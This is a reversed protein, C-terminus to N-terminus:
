QRENPRAGKAARTQERIARAQSETPDPLSMPTEAGIAHLFPHAQEMRHPVVREPRGGTLYTKTWDSFGRRVTLMTGLTNVWAEFKIRDNETRFRYEMEKETPRGFRDVKVAVRGPTREKDPVAEINFKKVLYPWLVDPSTEVAFAVVDYPVKQGKRHGGRAHTLAADLVFTLIPNLQEEIVAETVRGFADNNEAGVQALFSVMNTADILTDIAPHSPGAIYSGAKGDYIYETPDLVVRAKHYDEGAYWKDGALQINRQALLTRSISPAGRAIASLMENFMAARFAVFLMYRNLQGKIFDPVRGYDLVSARAMSAAQAETMGERLASAFMNVRFARDTANAFYQPLNTRTPDIARLAHRRWTVPAGSSTLMANRLADDVFADNFEVGGRTVGINNRAVADEFEARTWARGTRSNFLTAHAPKPSVADVLPKGIISSFQRAVDRGQMGYGPGKLMRAANVPGVTTAAILPASILNMGMYRGQPILGGAGAALLGGASTRKLMRMTEGLADVVFRGIGVAGEDKINDWKDRKHLSEISKVLTGNAASDQLTEIAAVVDQGYVAYAPDYPALKSVPWTLSDLQQKSLGPTFGLARTMAVLEDVAPSVLVGFAKEVANQKVRGVVVDLADDRSLGSSMQADMAELYHKYFTLDAIDNDFAQSLLNRRFPDDRLMELLRGPHTHRTGHPGATADMAEFAGKISQVIADVNFVKLNLAQEGTRGLIATIDVQNTGKSVMEKFIAEVLVRRDGASMSLSLRQAINDIQRTRSGPGGFEYEYTRAPGMVYNGDKTRKKKRVRQYEPTGKLAAKAKGVEGKKPKGPFKAEVMGELFAGRVVGPVSAERHIRAPGAATHASPFVEGIIEPHLDKVESWARSVAHGVDRPPMWSMAAQAIGDDFSGPVGTALGRDELRSSNERMRGVVERINELTIPLIDESTARFVEPRGGTKLEAVGRKLYFEELKVKSLDVRIDPFFTNIIEEWSDKMVKTTARDLAIKRMDSALKPINSIDGRRLEGLGVAGAAVDSQYAVYYIADRETLDPYKAMEAEVRADLDRKAADVARDVRREIVRNFAEQPGLGQAKYDLATDRIERTLRDGVAGVEDVVRTRFAGLSAPTQSGTPFFDKVEEVQQGLAKKAKQMGKAIAVGTFRKLAVAEQYRAEEGRRYVRKSPDKEGGLNVVEIDARQTQPGEFVAEVAVGRDLVNRYARETIGDQIIAHDAANLSEGADIRDLARKLINSREVTGKGFAEMIQKRAESKNTYTFGVQRKGDLLVPKGGSMLPGAVVDVENTIDRVKDMVENTVRNIPVMLGKTVFIMDDPMVNELTASVGRGGATIIAEAVHQPAAGILDKSLQEDGLRRHVIRALPSRLHVADSSRAVRVLENGLAQLETPLARNAKLPMASAGPPYFVEDVASRLSGGQGNAIDELKEINRVMPLDVGQDELKELMRKAKLQSDPIDLDALTSEAMDRFSSARWTNIEQNLRQIHDPTLEEADKLRDVGSRALIRGASNSGYGVVKLEGAKIKPNAIVSAQMMQPALAEAAVRRGVVTNVSNRDQLITLDDLGAVRGEAIDQAIRINAVRKATEVPRSLALGIKDVEEGFGAAKALKQSVNIGGRAALKAGQLPGLGYLMETAAGVWFPMTTGGHEFVLQDDDLPGYPWRLEYDADKPDGRLAPISMYEDGLMRRRALSTAARAVLNGSTDAVRRGSPDLPHAQTRQIPQFPVPFKGLASFEGLAPHPGPTDPDIAWGTLKKQAEDKSMGLAELSEQLFQHMLYAPDDPNVPEGTKPDQEWFVPLVDFIVQNGLTSWIAPLTGMAAGFSTEVMRGLEPDRETLINELIPEQRDLVMEELRTLHEPSLLASGKALNEQSRLLGQYEAQRIRRQEQEETPDMVEQRAFSEVIREGTTPQRWDGTEPDLYREEGISTHPDDPDSVRVKDIRTERAFPLDLWGGTAGPAKDGAPGYVRRRIKKIEHDAKERANASTLGQRLRYDEQLEVRLNDLAANFRRREDDVMSRRGIAQEYATEEGIAGVYARVRGPTAVTPEPPKYPVFTLPSQQSAGARDPELSVSSGTVPQPEPVRELDGQESELVEPTAEALARLVGIYTPDGGEAELKAAEDLYQQRTRPM